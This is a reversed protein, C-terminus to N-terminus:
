GPLHLVRDFREWRFDALLRRIKSEMRELNTYHRFRSRLGAGLVRPQESDLEWPHFYFFCPKKEKLNIRRLGWRFTVYPLMRFHGGGGFSWCRGAWDVTSVPCEVVKHGGPVVAFRAAFAWVSSSILSFTPARYGVIQKGTLDELISKSRRIDTRFESRTQQYIPVHEYGHSGIEHGADVIMSVLHPNREAVWGLIFFTATTAADSFLQLIRNVNREVRSAQLDWDRRPICRNFAYVHFHEEVDVSMGNIAPDDLRWETAATQLSM